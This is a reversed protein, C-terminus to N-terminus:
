FAFKYELGVGINNVDSRRYENVRYEAVAYVKDFLRFGLQAEGVIPHNPITRPLDENFNHDIFGGLYLRDSLYPFKMLFAHEIQWVHPDEHDFQIAHWNVSYRLHIKDLFGSVFDSKNLSWRIGIRHRDNDSGQRFNSQWTIEFPSTETLQWRLNQETFFTDLDPLRGSGDQESFNTFGFYSFRNPFRLFANVTVTNDNSVKSQYPYVNVDVFGSKIFDDAASSASWFYFVDLAFVSSIKRTM